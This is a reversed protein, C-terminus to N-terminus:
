VDDAACLADRADDHVSGGVLAITREHSIGSLMEAGLREHDHYAGFRATRPGMVTAVVRLCWGLDSVTKGVDHLLAAASEERTAAPRMAMFRAHVELSHRRDRPQMSQWLEMEGPLLVEDAVAVDEDRPPRNSASTVARRVLHRLVSM